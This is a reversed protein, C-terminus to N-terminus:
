KPLAGFFYRCYTLSRTTDKQLRVSFATTCYEEGEQVVVTFTQWFVGLSDTYDFVTDKPFDMLLLTRKTLERGRDNFYAKQSMPNRHLFGLLLIGVTGLVAFGVLLEM